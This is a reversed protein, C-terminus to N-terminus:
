HRRGAHGLRLLRGLTGCRALRCQRRKQAHRIWGRELRGLAGLGGAHRDADDRVVQDRRREKAVAVLAGGEAGEDAVRAQEDYGLLDAEALGYGSYSRAIHVVFRLHALVLERASDVCEDYYLREALEREREASLVAIGGVAQIYASLNAGPAMNLVASNPVAVAQQTQTM